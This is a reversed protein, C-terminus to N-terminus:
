RVQATNNLTSGLAILQQTSGVQTGLLANSLNQQQISSNQAAIGNVAVLNNNSSRLSEVVAQHRTEAVEQRLDALQNFLAYNGATIASTIATTSNAVNQSIDMQGQQILMMESTRNGGFGNGGLLAGFLLGTVLGGGLGDGSGSAVVSPMSSSATYM